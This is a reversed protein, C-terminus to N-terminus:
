VETEIYIYIYVYICILGFPGLIMITGVYVGFYLYLVGNLDSTDVMYYVHVRPTPPGHVLGDHLIRPSGLHM